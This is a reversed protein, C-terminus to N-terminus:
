PKVGIRVLTRACIETLLIEPDNGTIKELYCEAPDDVNEIFIRIACRIVCDEPMEPLPKIMGEFKFLRIANNLDILAQENNPSSIFRLGCCYSFKHKIFFVGTGKVCEKLYEVTTKITGGYTKNKM